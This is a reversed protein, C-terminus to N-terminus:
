FIIIFLSFYFLFLLGVSYVIHRHVCVYACVFTLSLRNAYLVATRRRSSELFFVYVCCM